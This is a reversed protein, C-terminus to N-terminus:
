GETYIADNLIAIGISYIIILHLSCKLKSCLYIDIYYKRFRILIYKDTGIFQESLYFINASVQRVFTHILM